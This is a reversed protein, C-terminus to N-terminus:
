GIPFLSWQSPCLKDSFSSHENFLINKIIRQAWGKLVVSFYFLPFLHLSLLLCTLTFFYFFNFSFSLSCLSLFPIYPLLFLRIFFLFHLYFLSPNFTSFLLVLLIELQYLIYIRNRSGICQTAKM